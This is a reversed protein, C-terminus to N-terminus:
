IIKITQTAHHYSVMNLLYMSIVKMKMRVSIKIKTKITIRMKIQKMIQTTEDTKANIKRFGNSLNKTQSMKFQSGHFLRM